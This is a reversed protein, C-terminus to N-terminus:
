GKPPRLAGRLLALDAGVVARLAILAAGYVAGIGVLAVPLPQHRLAFAVALALAGAVAARWFGPIGPLSGTRRRLFWLVALLVYCESAATAAAAAIAGYAPVLALNLGVNVALGSVNIWLASRQGDVSIVILGLVINFASFATAPVLVRLIEGAGGFAHGGLLTVAPGALAFMAVLLPVAVIWTFRLASAWLAVRRLPNAAARSLVPLAASAFLGPFVLGMEMVRYALMYSGVASAPRLLSLVLVDARAYLTNLVLAAGLPLSLTLLGLLAKPEWTPRLSIRGRLLAVMTACQLTMGVVGAGVVGVVGARLWLAGLTLGLTLVRGALELAALQGLRMGVQYVCGVTSALTAPLLGVLAVAAALAMGSREGYALAAVGVGAAYVVPVGLLRGWLATRVLEGARAPAKAIERTLLLPLGGDLLVICLASLTTVTALRGYGSTSLVRAVVSVSVLSVALTALKFAWQALTGRLVLPASREDLDTAELALSM